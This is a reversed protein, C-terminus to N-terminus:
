PSILKIVKAAGESTMSSLVLSKQESNMNKVIVQVLESDTTLLVELAKAAQDADMEGVSKAVVQQEKTAISEGKLTEYIEAAIDPYIEEFQTIFLEPNDEAISEDWAKKQTLFDTYKMEYEKLSDNRKQLDQNTTELINIKDQLKQLEQKQENYLTLLEEKSLDASTEQISPILKEIVPVNRLFNLIPMRFIFGLGGLIILIIIIVLWKKKKRKKVRLPPIVNNMEIVNKAKTDKGM